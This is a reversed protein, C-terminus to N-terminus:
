CTTTLRNVIEPDIPIPEFLRGNFGCSPIQSPALEHNRETECRYHTHKGTVLSIRGLEPHECIHEFPPTNDETTNRIKCHICNVCFKM